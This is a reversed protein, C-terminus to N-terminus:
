NGEEKPTLEYFILASTWNTSDSGGSPYTRQESVSSYKVDKIVADPHISLWDNIRIGLMGQKEYFEVVKM